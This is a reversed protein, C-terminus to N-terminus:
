PWEREKFALAANTAEDKTAYMGLSVRRGDRGRAQARWRGTQKHLHVGHRDNWMSAYRINQRTTTVELNERRNDLGSNNRHHVVAGTPPNMLLRHMSIRRRWIRAQAYERGGQTRVVWWQYLSLLPYDADDALITHGSATEIRMLVKWSRYNPKSHKNRANKRAHESGTGTLLQVIKCSRHQLEQPKERIEKHRHHSV